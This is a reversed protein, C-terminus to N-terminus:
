IRDTDLGAVKLREVIKRMKVFETGWAPTLGVNESFERGSIGELVDAYKICQLHLEAVYANRPARDIARKIREYAEKKTM